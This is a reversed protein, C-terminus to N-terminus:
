SRHRPIDTDWAAPSDLSACHGVRERGIARRVSFIDTKGWNCLQSRLQKVEERRPQGLGTWESGSCTDKAKWLAM